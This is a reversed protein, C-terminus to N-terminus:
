TGGVLLALDAMAATASEQSGGRRNVVDVFLGKM